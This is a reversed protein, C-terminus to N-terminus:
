LHVCSGPTCVNHKRSAEPIVVREKGAGLAEWRMRERGEREM